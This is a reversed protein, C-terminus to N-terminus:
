MERYLGLGRDTVFYIGILLLIKCLGVWYHRWQSVAFGALCVWVDFGAPDVDCSSVGVRVDESSAVTEGDDAEVVRRAAHDTSKADVLM